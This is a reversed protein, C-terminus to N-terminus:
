FNYLASIGGNMQNNTGSIFNLGDLFLEPDTWTDVTLNGWNFSFGLYTMNNPYRNYEKAYTTGDYDKFEVSFSRWYTTGGFRIDLWSLVEGEFGMKLYPLTTIGAKNEYTALDINGAVDFTTDETVENKLSALSVGFDIVALMGATPTYHMGSGIDIIMGSIKSVEPDTQFDTGAGANYYYDESEIKAMYLAAHPVFTISPNYQHFYRGM